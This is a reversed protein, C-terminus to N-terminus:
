ELKDFKDASREEIVLIWGFNTYKIDDCYSKSPTEQNMM